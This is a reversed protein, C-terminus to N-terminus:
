READPKVSDRPQFWASASARPTKNPPTGFLRSFVASWISKAPTSGTAAVNDWAGTIDHLYAYTHRSPHRNM